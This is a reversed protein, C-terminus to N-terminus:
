RHRLRLLRLLRGLLHQSPLRARRILGIGEKWKYTSGSLSGGPWRIFSPGLGRLSDLLDPRLMGDRRVDARMLSVFDLLVTGHGTAVIEIQAQTDRVPSTFSFPVQQWDSGNFALSLSAIPEGKSSQVRLTLHPSGNEHKIWLSGDYQISQDLFIRGQRIGAHGGDAHLRVSKSGNQFNVSAIEVHGRDSFPQWYTEFDNGEFGAGRIQEAFLGDEVSHNIHELFQGYIRKDIPVTVRDTDVLMVSIKPEGAAGVASALLPLSVTSLPIAASAAMSTKLFRRRNM